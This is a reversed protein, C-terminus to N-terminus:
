GPGSWSKLVRVKDFGTLDTVGTVVTYPRGLLYELALPEVEAVGNVGWQTGWSNVLLFNGNKRYGVIAVAHGSRSGDERVDNLRLIGRCQSMRQTWIFGCILSGYGGGLFNKADNLNGIDVTNRVKYRSADAYAAPTTSLANFSYPAVAESPVGDEILGRVVGEITCGNKWDVKGMWKKQGNEWAFKRSLQPVKSFDGAQLGAICEAATSAAHGSCAPISGQSEIKLFKTPDVEPMIAAPPAAFAISRKSLAAKDQPGYTLIDYGTFTNM